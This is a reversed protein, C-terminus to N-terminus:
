DYGIVLREIQHSHTNALIFEHFDLIVWGLEHQIETDQVTLSLQFAIENRKLVEMALHELESWQKSSIPKTDPSEFCIRRLRPLVESMPIPEFHSAQIASRLFPGHLEPNESPEPYVFSTGFQPSRLYNDVVRDAALGDPSEIIRHECWGYDWLPILAEPEKFM